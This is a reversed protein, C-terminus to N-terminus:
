LAAVEAAEALKDAAGPLAESAGMGFQKARGPGLRQTIFDALQGVSGGTDPEQSATPQPPEITPPSVQIPAQHVSRRTSHAPDTYGMKTSTSTPFETVPKVQSKSAAM